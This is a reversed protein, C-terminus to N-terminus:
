TVIWYVIFIYVGIELLYINNSFFSHKNSISNLNSSMFSVFLFVFTAQLWFIFGLILFQIENNLDNHFLFSPFFAIFFLSVKPNLINMILGKFFQNKSKNGIILKKKKNRNIFTLVILYSFYMVGLLKILNLIYENESIILSLGFTVFFTHILLGSTLGFSTMVAPKIGKSVSQSIVYIIDPGPSITLLLSTLFFTMLINIDM